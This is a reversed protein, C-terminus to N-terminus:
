LAGHVVEGRHLTARVVVPLSRGWLPTNSSRSALPVEGVTWEAEPDLVALDASCGPALGHERRLVQAGGTLARVATELRGTGAVLASLATELGIAGPEALEFELEKEVRSLPEHWSAAACLSGDELAAVLAARDSASRLPPVLRTASDYVTDCVAQDTLLTHLAITSASVPAGQARVHRLMAVGRATTVGTVHVSCGTDNALAGLRAIALEEGAVPIGRLGIRTAVEGDHMVGAAELTPDGGRVLVPRGLPRLYLLAHRLVLADDHVRGGDSFACAGAEAMRGVEALDRGALGVTIAGAVALEVPLGTSRELLERVRSPDDTVPDVAPNLLVTTFGGAAAAAAGAELGELWTRGPDRLNASLDFFGPTVVHGSLDVRQADVPGPDIAAVRGHEILLDGVRDVGGIPDLLRAGELLRKM